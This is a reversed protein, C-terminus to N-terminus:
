ADTYTPLFRVFFFASSVRKPQFASRACLFPLFRGTQAQMRVALDYRRLSACCVCQKAITDAVCSLVMRAM